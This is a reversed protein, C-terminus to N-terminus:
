DTFERKFTTRGIVKGYMSQEIRAGLDLLNVGEGSGHDYWVNLRTNIKFSAEGENRLPSRYWYNNRQIKDPEFGLRSLYDQIPIQKAHSYSLAM